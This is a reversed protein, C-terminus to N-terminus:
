GLRLETERVLTLGLPAEGVHRLQGTRFKSEDPRALRSRAGYFRLGGALKLKLQAEYRFALKYFCM